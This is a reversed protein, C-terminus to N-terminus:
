KYGRVPLFETTVLNKMFINNDQYKAGYLIKVIQIAAAEIAGDQKLYKRNVAENPLELGLYAKDVEESSLGLHRAMRHTADQPFVRFHRLGKFHAKVLDRIQNKRKDIVDARVALVDFIIEPLKRSDILRWAGIKELKTSVPEYTIVADLNNAKWDKLHQDISSDVVTVDSLKLGAKSLVEHLLLTGLAGKEVGIRMGKLETIRHLKKRTYIADAGASEDFVMVIRLDVGAARASLVEDLTLAAADVKDEKILTLSETASSTERIIATNKKIWGERNALFLFEYGPWKHIAVRLPQEVKSCAALILVFSLILFSLRFARNVRM